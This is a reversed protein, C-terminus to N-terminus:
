WNLGVLGTVTSGNAASYVKAAAIPFIGVPVNQYLVGIDGAPSDVKLNGTVGIYFADFGQVLDAALSLVTQKDASARINTRANSM